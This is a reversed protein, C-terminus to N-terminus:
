ELHEHSGKKHELLNESQSASTQLIGNRYCQASLEPKDMKEYTLGLVAYAEVKPEISICAELYRQAKGWLENQAALTGCTLLLGPSEPHTKLWSEAHSLAKTPNIPRMQGYLTILAEDWDKKLCHKIASEAEEKKNHSLLAKAYTLVLKPNAHLSKPVKDWVQEPDNTQLMHQYATTELAFAEQESCLKYKKLLPLLEVLSPWDKLAIYSSKLLKLVFPHRPELQRLHKLTALSQEFQGQNFQLEAQTLGVAMENDDTLTHALALYEDRKQELGQESAAKAAALYNVLPYKAYKTGQILLHEARSWQGSALLVLGEQTKENARKYRRTERVRKLWGPINLFGAILRLVFYLAAFGVLGIIGGVFLSMEYSKGGFAVMVMGQQDHLQLGLWAGGAILLLLLILRIM